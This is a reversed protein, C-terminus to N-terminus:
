LDVDLKIKSQFDNIIKPIIQRNYKTYWFIKLFFGLVIKSIITLAQKPIIM